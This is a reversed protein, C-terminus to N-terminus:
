EWCAKRKRAALRSRPSRHATLSPSVLAGRSLLWATKFSCAGSLLLSRFPERVPVALSSCAAFM